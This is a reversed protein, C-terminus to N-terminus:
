VKVLTSSKKIKFIKWLGEVCSAAITAVTLNISKSPQTIAAKDFYSSFFSKVTYPQGDTVFYVQRNKGKTLALVAAEALNEVHIAEFESQGDAIWSFTGARAKGSITQFAPCEPGWVFPPRLIITEMPLPASRLYIEIDKKAKGYFSNPESPYPFSEDIGSLPLTAQLVSESSLHVFRKVGARSAAQVLDLTTDLLNKKYFDWSEWFVVPAACHIIAEFSKLQAEFRELKTLDGLLPIAGISKVKQNATPSRVLAHVEHGSAVLRNVVHHGLFGSGGTVLIRM